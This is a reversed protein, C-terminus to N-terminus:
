RCTVSYRIDSPYIWAQLYGLSMDRFITHRKLGQFKISTILSQVLHFWGGGCGSVFSRVDVQAGAGASLFKVQKSYVRKNSPTKTETVVKPMRFCGEEDCSIIRGGAPQVVGAEETVYVLFGPDCPLNLPGLRDMMFPENIFNPQLKEKDKGAKTMDKDHKPPLPLTDICLRAITVTRRVM